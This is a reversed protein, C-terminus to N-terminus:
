GLRLRRPDAAEDGFLRGHLAEVLGQALAVDGGLELAAEDPDIVTECWDLPAGTAWTEPSRDLLPSSSAVRGEAVEVTSGAVLEEGDEEPVRVGARVTGRAAAPVRILPLAMQFAAEVDFVDPALVDAEPYRLEYRVAAVILSIAECGWDTLAYAPARGTGHLAEAQGSNVLAELREEVTEPDLVAGLTEQLEELTQPGSALAHTLTASWALAMPGLARMGALGLELPGQPCHWLWRKITQVIFHMEEGKETLVPQRDCAPDEAALVLQRQFEDADPQEFGEEDEEFDEEEADFEEESPAPATGGELSSEIM